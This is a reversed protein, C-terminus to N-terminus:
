AAGPPARLPREAAWPEPPPDTRPPNTRRTDPGSAAEIQRPPEKSSAAAQRRRHRGRSASLLKQREEATDGGRGRNRPWRGHAGALFSQGLRKQQWELLEGLRGPGCGGGHAEAYARWVAAAAACDYCHDFGPVAEAGEAPFYGWERDVTNLRYLEEEYARADYERLPAKPGVVVLRTETSSLPAFAQLWLEGALYRVSKEAYPLRFKFMSAAVAGGLAQYWDAQADMNAAVEKEFEEDEAGTRIDSVFLLKEPGAGWEEADRQRFPRQRAFIRAGSPRGACDRLDADFRFPAPDYLHFEHDPFLAAVAAINTGPAAGAYVVKRARHGHVTLFRLLGLFLKTQGLHLATRLSYVERRYPLRPAEGHALTLPAPRGEPPLAGIAEAEKATLLEGGYPCLRAGGRAGKPPSRPEKKRQRPPPDM